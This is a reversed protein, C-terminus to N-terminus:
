RNIRNKIKKCIYNRDKQTKYILDKYAWLISSIVNKEKKTIESNDFNWFMDVDPLPWCMGDFNFYHKTEDTNIGHAEEHCDRCLGILDELKENGIRDYTLHHCEQMSQDCCKECIGNCRNYVERRKRQWVWTQLYEHYLEKWLTKNNCNRFGKRIRAIEKQDEETYPKITQGTNM